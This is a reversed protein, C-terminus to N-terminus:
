SSAKLGEVALLVALVFYVVLGVAVFVDAVEKRRAYMYLLYLAVALSLAGSVGIVAQFM